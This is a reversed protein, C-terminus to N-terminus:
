KSQRAWPGGPAPNGAVVCSLGGLLRAILDYRSGQRLFRSENSIM